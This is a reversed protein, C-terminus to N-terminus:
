GQSTEAFGQSPRGPVITPPRSGAAPAPRAAAPGLFPLAAGDPSLAAALGLLVGATGTALDMSLRYLQDGVFALGGSYPIAHWALRRIHAAIVPDDAPRAGSHQGALYPLMGARGNFLGAQAYFNSRAARSISTVAEAFKENGRHALYLRLVMGIGVSGDNIYPMLRWGQDVQLAGQRDTTCRALDTQLATGAVDLYAPDGTREYLRIMLLAQGSGGRLLGVGAEADKGGARRAVREAVLDGSKLVADLLGPDGCSESLGLLALSFGPLGSSLDDGLREWRDSLCIQALRQAHETHGLRALVWAIGVLGDLLGLPTGQVPSATRALLWAEHEPLRTGAAESLAYLVGAAGHALGLGGGPGSFQAIDGPFLRDDRDPTASATIATVVAAKLRDWDPTRTELLEYAPSVAPVPAESDSTGTGTGPTRTIERVADRLFSAPVPFHAAIVEALHAAKARHLTFLTTLPMFVALRLCALSYADIAFGTRDRPAMFGPNGITPRRGEEPYTAAEFDILAVTDDPRVMINFMHLDNLIVGREHAKAVARETDACIHLAWGTFSATEAADVHEGLLPHRKAYFSNLSSGEIFEQALFHHGGVEFFGRPEPAIGLGSLRTLVEHERRLRAVSDSGDGGLGAHPRAEKLVVQEGTREDTAQYVGGGNSFHLAKDIRYPLGAMTTANRAALHPALFDPLTVWEPVSFVPSRTDPVLEGATNEIAHVMEGHSDVCFRKTFGGYRVYLPGAGYRLDSLIYPGPQGGLLEDLEKLILELQAEDVPYITVVKGSHGRPAYKANRLHVALRSPVFKFAIGRPVCYDWVQTIVDGANDPCASVHIKWGQPPIQDGPPLCSQWEGIQGPKWGPPLPRKSIEFIGKDTKGRDLTEYFLPHALCFQEYRRDM